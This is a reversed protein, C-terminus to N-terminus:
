EGIAVILENLIPLLCFSLVMDEAVLRRGESLVAWASVMRVTSKVMATMKVSDIKYMRYIVKFAKKKFIITDM